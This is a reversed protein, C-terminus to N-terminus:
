NSHGTRLEGWSRLNEPPIPVDGQPRRRLVLADEPCVTVCLGCGVCNEPDILCFDEDLSLASFQCRELCDGCTLCGEEDIVSIFDSKAVAASRNFEAIGRLILCSCTCCNCIYRIPAQYNGTSHVLGDEEAQHLIDLAEQKTIARDVQSNEFYGEIPAFVLCNEVPHDCADDILQKQVRCICNRVGWSQASEIIGLAEEYPYIEMEIDISEQVPIVRHVSIGSGTIKSETEQYYQEFLEAMERTLIPQLEEFFGVVFPMLGFVLDNGRKSSLILNKDVMEKLLDLVENEVQDLRAAIVSAPQKEYDMAVALHAEQPSFIMELLRVEVGSATEPFRNPLQDLKKALRQYLNQDM